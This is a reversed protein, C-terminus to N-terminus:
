KCQLLFQEGGVLYSRARDALADLIVVHPLLGFAVLEEVLLGGPDASLLEAHLRPAHSNSHSVLSGNGSCYCCDSPTPKFDHSMLVLLIISSKNESRDHLIQM